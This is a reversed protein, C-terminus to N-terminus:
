KQSMGELTKIKESLEKSTERVNNGFTADNAREKEGEEMASNSASNSAFNSESHRDDLSKHVDKKHHELGIKRIAWFHECQNCTFKGPNHQTDIHNKLEEESESRYNCQDCAFSRVNHLRNFQYPM